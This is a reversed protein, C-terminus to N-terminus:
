GVPLGPRGRILPDPWGSDLIQSIAKFPHSILVQDFDGGPMRAIKPQADDFSPRSISGPCLLQKSLAPQVEAPSFSGRCPAERIHRRPVALVGCWVARGPAPLRRPWGRDGSPVSRSRVPHESGSVARHRRTGAHPPRELLVASDSWLFAFSSWAWIGFPLADGQSRSGRQSPAIGARPTTADGTRCSRVGTAVNFM